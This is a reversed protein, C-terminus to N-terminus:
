NGWVATVKLGTGGKTEGTLIVPIVQAKGKAEFTLSFEVEVRNPKAATEFRQIQKGVAEVCEKIISVAEDFVADSNRSVPAIEDSAEIDQTGQAEEVYVVANGIRMPVFRRISPPEPSEARGGSYGIDDSM